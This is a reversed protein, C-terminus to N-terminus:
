RRIRRVQVERATDCGLEGGGDADAVAVVQREPDVATVRAVRLRIETGAFVDSLKPAEIQQGAALQHLRLRQVFDPVANVVAIEIDALSLRRALNGAM